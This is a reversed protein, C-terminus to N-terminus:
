RRKRQVKRLEMGLVSALKAASRVSITRDGMIFGHMTAYGLGARKALIYMSLGSRLAEDKLQQELNGNMGVTYGM